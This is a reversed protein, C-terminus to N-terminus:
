RRGDGSSDACPDGGALWGARESATSGARLADNWLRCGVPSLRPIDPENQVAVGAGSPAPAPKCDRAPMFITERPVRKLDEKFKRQDAERDLKEKALADATIAGQKRDEVAKELLRNSFAREDDLLRKAERGQEWEVGKMFATGLAIIAIVAYIAYRGLVAEM